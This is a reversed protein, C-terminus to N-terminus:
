EEEFMKKLRNILERREDSEKTSSAFGNKLKPRIDASVGVIINDTLEKVEDDGLVGMVIDATLLLSTIMRRHDKKAVAKLVNEDALRVREISAIAKNLEMDKVHMLLNVAISLAASLADADADSRQIEDIRMGSVYIFDYIVVAQKKTTDESYDDKDLYYMIKDVMDQVSKFEVCSFKDMDDKLENTLKM